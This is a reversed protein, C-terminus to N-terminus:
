IQKVKVDQDPRRLTVVFQAREKEMHINRVIERDVRWADLAHLFYVM